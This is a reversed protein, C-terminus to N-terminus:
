TKKPSTDQFQSLRAAAAKWDIDLGAAAAAAIAALANYLQLRGQCPVFLSQTEKGYHLVAQVGGAAPRIDAAQLDCRSTTGFRILTGSYSTLDLRNINQDDGNIILTHCRTLNELLNGPAQSYQAVSQRGLTGDGDINMIVCITPQFCRCCAALSGPYAASMEFIAAQTAEQIGLLYDLNLSLGNNSFCTAQISYDQLICKLMEKTQTKGSTGTVGIVPIDFLSRYLVMFSDIAQQVNPVYITTIDGFASSWDPDDTVVICGAPIAVAAPPGSLAFFLCNESLNESRKTSKSVTKDVLGRVLRGNIAAIVAPLPLAKM